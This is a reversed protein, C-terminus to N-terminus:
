HFNNKKQKYISYIWPLTFIYSAFYGAFLYNSPLFFATIITSIGVFIGQILSVLVLPEEKHARLYMAMANTGIAILWTFLLLSINGLNLFRQTFGWEKPIIIFLLICILGGSIFTIISLFLQRKFLHDLEGWKKLSVLMNMKPNAVYMWINSLSFVATILSLTIGIQGAVESGYFKFAVPTFLQFILYGSSWSIAYRWILQLVEKQWNYSYEKENLLQKITIGFKKYLLFARVASQALAGLAIAYLNFGGVLVVIVVVFNTLLSIFGIQQSKAIQDCGEFFANIINLVFLIGSAILFIIWPILWNFDTVEGRLIFYGIAFIIPFTILVATMGWKLVYRFFSSIRGLFISDGELRGKVSLKLHAYEHAAFQGVIVTFGLDAFISLASLSGFTYWYGQIQKTLFLPILIMTVPGTFLRVLNTLGTQLVDRSILRIISKIISSNKKFM